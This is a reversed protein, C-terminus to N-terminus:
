SIVWALLVCKEQSSDNYKAHEPAADVTAMRRGNRRPTLYERLSAVSDPSFSQQAVGMEWGVRPVLPAHVQDSCWAGPGKAGSSTDGQKGIHGDDTHVGFLAM